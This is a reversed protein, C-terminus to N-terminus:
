CQMSRSRRASILLLMLWLQHQLLPHLHHRVGPREGWFIHLNAAQCHIMSPVDRPIPASAHGFPAGTAWSLTARQSLYFCSKNAWVLSCRQSPWHTRETQKFQFSSRQELGTQHTVRDTHTHACAHTHRQLYASYTSSVNWGFVSWSTFSEQGASHAPTFAFSWPSGLDRKPPSVLTQSDTLKDSPWHKNPVPERLPKGELCLMSPVVLDTM